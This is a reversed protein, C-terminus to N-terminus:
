LLFWWTYNGSSRGLGQAEYAWRLHTWGHSKKKSTDNRVRGHGKEEVKQPKRNSYLPLFLYRTGNGEPRLEELAKGGRDPVQALYSLLNPAQRACALLAQDEFDRLCKWSLTRLLHTHTHALFLFLFVGLDKTQVKSWSKETGLVCVRM